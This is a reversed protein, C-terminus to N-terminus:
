GSVVAPIYNAGDGAAALVVAEAPSADGSGRPARRFARGCRYVCGQRVLTNIRFQNVPARWCNRQDLRGLLPNIKRLVLLQANEIQRELSKFYISKEM